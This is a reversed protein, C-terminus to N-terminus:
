LSLYCKKAEALSEKLVSQQDVRSILYKNVNKIKIVELVLDKKYDSIFDHVQNDILKYNQFEEFRQIIDDVTMWGYVSLLKYIADQRLQKETRM